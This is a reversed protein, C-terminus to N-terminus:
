QNGKTGISPGEQLSEWEGFEDTTFGHNVWRGRGFSDRKFVLIILDLYRSSAHRKHLGLRKGELFGMLDASVGVSEGHNISMCLSGHLLLDLEQSLFVTVRSCISSSAHGKEDDIWYDDIQIEHKLFASLETVLYELATKWDEQTRHPPPNYLWIDESINGM